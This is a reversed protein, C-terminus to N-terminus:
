LCICCILVFFFFFLFYGTIYLITFLIIEAQSAKPFYKGHKKSNKKLNILKKQLQIRPVAETKSYQDFIFFINPAMQWGTLYITHNFFFHFQIAIKDNNNKQM